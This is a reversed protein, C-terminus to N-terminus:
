GLDMFRSGSASSDLIGSLVVTILPLGLYTVPLTGQPFGTLFVIPACMANEVNAFFCLSKGGNPRLGSINSLMSLGAMLSTTLYHNQAGLIVDSKAKLTESAQGGDILLQMVGKNEEASTM